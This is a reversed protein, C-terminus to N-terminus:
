WARELVGGPGSVAALARRGGIRGSPRSPDLHRWLERWRVHPLRYVFLNARSVAFVWVFDDHVTAAVAALGGEPEHEIHCLLRGDGDRLDIRAAGPPESGPRGFQEHVIPIVISGEVRGQGQLAQGVAPHPLPRGYLRVRRATTHRPDAFPESDKTEYIQLWGVRKRRDTCSTVVRDRGVSIGQSHCNFHQRVPAPWGVRSYVRGRGPKQMSVQLDTRTVRYRQGHLDEARIVEPWHAASDETEHAGSFSSACGSLACVLVVAGARIRTCKRAIGM